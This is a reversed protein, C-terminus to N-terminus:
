SQRTRSGVLELAFSQALCNSNTWTFFTLKDLLWSFLSHFCPSDSYRTVLSGITALSYSIASASVSIFSPTSFTPSLSHSYPLFFHHSIRLLKCIFTTDKSFWQMNTKTVQLPRGNKPVWKYWVPAPEQSPSSRKKAASSQHPASKNTM